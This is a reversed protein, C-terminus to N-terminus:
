IQRRGGHPRSNFDRIAQIQEEDARTARRSPTLQFTRGRHMWVTGHQRGGHPRSNFHFIERELIDLIVDGETLAHTSISRKQSSCSGSQDGETLAHTSIRKGSRSSWHSSRRGGHPRSNFNNRRYQTLRQINDGETLAHTSIPYWAGMWKMGITARRSPTLQFSAIAQVFAIIGTARRSPTLQFELTARPRVGRETARRSPTLQFAREANTM